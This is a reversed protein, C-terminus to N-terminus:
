KFNTPKIERTGKHLRSTEFRVMKESVLDDKYVGRTGWLWSGRGSMKYHPEKKKGTQRLEEEQNTGAHRQGIRQINNTPNLNDLRDKSLGPMDTSAFIVNREVDTFRLAGLDEKDAMLIMIDGLDDKRGTNSANQSDLWGVEVTAVPDKGIAENLAIGLACPGSLVLEQVARVKWIETTSSASTSPKVGRTELTSSSVKLADREIDLLDARRLILNVLREVARLMIPHGPAVGLLGNWLCYQGNAYEGVADRPAFLTMSPSIFADLGISAELMVDIDAYVGGEKLLVMYRFLDAKYAGPILADYAELFIAPFNKSIYDRADDDTYFKYTWGSYSQSKWTEQLRFLQPYNTPSIDEFWTQHITRPIMKSTKQRLSKEHDERAHDSKPQSKHSRFDDIQVDILIISEDNDNANVVEEKEFMVDDFCSGCLHSCKAHSGHMASRLCRHCPFMWIGGCFRSKKYMLADLSIKSSYKMKGDSTKFNEGGKGFSESIAVSTYKSTSTSKMISYSIDDLDQSSTPVTLNVVPDKKSTSVVITRTSDTNLLDDDESSIARFLAHYPSICLGSELSSSESKCQYYRRLSLVKESYERGYGRRDDISIDSVEDRVRQVIKSLVPHMPSFAMMQIIGSEVVVVGMDECKDDNDFADIFEELHNSIKSSEVNPHIYIGGFKQLFDLFMYEQQYRGHVLKTYMENTKPDEDEKSEQSNYSIFESIDGQDLDLLQLHISSSSSSSTNDMSCRSM